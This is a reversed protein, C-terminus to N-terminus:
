PVGDLVAAIRLCAVAAATDLNAVLVNANPRICPEPKPSTVTRSQRATTNWARRGAASSSGAVPVLPGRAALYARVSATHAEANPSLLVVSEHTAVRRPQRRPKRVERPDLRTLSHDVHAATGPSKHGFQAPAQPGVGNPRDIGRLAKNRRNATAIGSYPRLRSCGLLERKLIPQEISCQRLKDNVEHSIGDHPQALHGTHGLRAADDCSADPVVSTPPSRETKEPRRRALEIRVDFVLRLQGTGAPAVEALQEPGCSQLLDLLAGDHNIDFM